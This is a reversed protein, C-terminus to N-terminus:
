GKDKMRAATGPRAPFVVRGRDLTVGDAMDDALLVAGDLDAFDCLPLLQAAASIGVSSETMCGIMTRLGLQRARRLIRLAPTLGGCKVLKVNVGHFCGVCRDLDAEVGCSEDAVLPLPSRPRLRRMAEWEARPLPQEILEVGLEALEQANRLTEDETWGENADVRFRALTHQRLARVIALDDGGGGLKIKYVPWDPFERMKDLMVEVRDIGLTYDSVPAAALDLGWLRWLPQGCIKGWLDHAATDLACQAFRDAALLPDLQAWLASPDGPRWAEVQARARELAASMGDLSARYFTSAGAEGYGRLGDHELEVVLPEYATTSGRAITFVHRTHLTFRHLNLKM